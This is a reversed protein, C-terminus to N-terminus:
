SDIFSFTLAWGMKLRSDSKNIEKVTSRGWAQGGLSKYSTQFDSTGQTQAVKHQANENEM